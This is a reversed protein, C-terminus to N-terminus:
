RGFSISGYIKAVVPSWHQSGPQTTDTSICVLAFGGPVQGVTVMSVIAVKKGTVVFPAFSTPQRGPARIDSIKYEGVTMGFKALGRSYQQFAEEPRSVSFYIVDLFAGRSVDRVGFAYGPLTARFRTATESNTIWDSPYSVALLRQPDRWTTFRASSRETNKAPPIERLSAQSTDKRKPEPAARRGSDDMKRVPPEQTTPVFPLVATKGSVQGRQQSQPLVPAPVVVGTPSPQTLRSQTPGPQAPVPQPSKRLLGVFVAVLLVLVAAGGGLWLALPQKRPLTAATAAPPMASAPLPAPALRTPGIAPGSDAAGSDALGTAELPGAEARRTAEGVTVVAQRTPKPAAAALAVEPLADHFERATQFREAPQKAMARRVIEDWEEGVGVVASPVPVPDELHAKILEYDTTATYPLRGTLMEYLVVGASYLDSRPDSEDGKIREPAIYELTGIIRGTRTLRASGLVRAIGFDTVKVRGDNTVLINAPKIDRHLVGMSHAHGLGDLVQRMLRAAEGPELKGNTRIRHELSEGRVFEMVMYYEEGDHFFSYLVAINSHLLRALTVAESRFREILEPQRAIEARLVKIAVPREVQTDLGEYVTGMAGSGLERVIRYNQITSGIM